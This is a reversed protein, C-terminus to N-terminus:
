LPYWGKSIDAFEFVGYTDFSADECAAESKDLNSAAELVSIGCRLRTKTCVALISDQVYKLSRLNCERGVASLATIGISSSRLFM